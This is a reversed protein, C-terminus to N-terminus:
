TLLVRSQKKAKIAGRPHQNSDRLTNLTLHSINQSFKNEHYDHWTIRSKM